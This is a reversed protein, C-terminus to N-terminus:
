AVTGAHTKAILFKPFDAGGLLAVSPGGAVAQAARTREAIRMQRRGFVATELAFRLEKLDALGALPLHTRLVGVDVVGHHENKDSDPHYSPEGLLVQVRRQRHRDHCGSPDNPDEGDENRENASPPNVPRQAAPKEGFSQARHSFLSFLILEDTREALFPSPGIESELM